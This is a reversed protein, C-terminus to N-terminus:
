TKLRKKISHSIFDRFLPNPSVPQSTFEPHSQVGVSWPHNGWEGAEVLNEDMTTATIRLGAEELEKRYHNNVEYRHRHREKATNNKYAKFINSEEKLIKIDSLGLRMTGGYLSVDAQEELLTIIPTPTAQDFERSNAEKLNLVNRTYEIFMIQMGLCIGLYPISNERAFECAIIMGEVGREGFGGPIIIGQIDQFVEKIQVKTMSELRSSDIKKINIRYDNALAGHTLAEDVSKYADPLEIYKGVMAINVTPSETSGKDYLKDWLSFNFNSEKRKLNLKKCVQEDLKQNRYNIPIRYIHGSENHASIISDYNINTFLSIKKKIDETLEHESRCLLIDPQIGLERMARVSHQTPKTKVEGGISPVLTLHVSIANTGGQEYIMQRVAELFPISEIDGVTGGIEVITVDAGSQQAPAQIRRKIEDTIHPIVQVCKGLYDGKREKEIVSQYIQGTTISNSKNLTSATFRAYNGLDLDTEYGDDTVYVEGHQFPSMTGADINIYPDIKVLSIKFGECELITGISASAIGKGLSSSVGGTVFIFKSEGM